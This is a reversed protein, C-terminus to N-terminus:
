KIIVKINPAFFKRNLKDNVIIDFFFLEEGKQIGGMINDRWVKPLPTSKFLDATNTFVIEKRGTEENEIVSKKRYLFQYSSITYVNNNADTIKLPLKVLQNAEDVTVTADKENRGLFTKVVPPKFKTVPTITGNKPKKVAPKVSQGVVSFSIVFALLSCYFSRLSRM